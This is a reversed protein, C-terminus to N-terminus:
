GKKKAKVAEEKEEMEKWLDDGGFELCCSNCAYYCDMCLTRDGMTTAGSHGCRECLTEASPATENKKKKSKNM